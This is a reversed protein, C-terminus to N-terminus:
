IFIYSYVQFSNSSFHTPIIDFPSTKKIYKNIKPQMPDANTIYKTTAGYCTPDTGGASILGRGVLVSLNKIM